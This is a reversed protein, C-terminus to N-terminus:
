QTRHANCKLELRFNHRLNNLALAFFTTNKRHKEIFELQAVAYKKEPLRLNNGYEKEREVIKIPKMDISIAAIFNAKLSIDNQKANNHCM